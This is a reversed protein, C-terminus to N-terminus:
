PAVIDQLVLHFGKKGAFRFTRFGREDLTLIRPIDLREALLVLTADAFDMPTDQYRIMLRVADDIRAPTFADEVAVLGKRLFAALAETGGPIPQLFHLTETVVAGTTFFKGILPAWRERVLDHDPDNRDFLAVLAGTDVLFFKPKM